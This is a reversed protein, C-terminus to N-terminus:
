PASRRQPARDDAWGRRRLPGLHGSPHAKDAAAPWDIGGVEHRARQTAAVLRVADTRQVAAAVVGVVAALEVQEGVELRPEAGLQRVAQAM